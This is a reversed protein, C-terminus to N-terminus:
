GRQDIPVYEARLPGTYNSRPRILRNDAYQEMVHATWGAMRSIAFIPTYLDLDIGLAYYASASYFDVNPYLGKEEEMVRRIIQSMEYWRTNGTREGLEKSLRELHIARPDLVKYVRHGFGMIREKNALRERVWAETKAPDDIKLLMEMVRQNAGGHLPGKLAGIAATVASYMDSLTATTVRATFTSANFEHDVHLVLAVDFTRESIDSPETGTLMYLFNAAHSLDTRPEVPRHGKRLRDFAATITATRATLRIARRVNAQPDAVDKGADPDYMGLASVATRLVDMPHADKPAKEIIAMVEAPLARNEALQRKLDDLQQRTPLEGYWCLYAVEEFSSHQALDHIDYGRYLLRGEKGDVFSISSNGAVVGELGAKVEAQSM